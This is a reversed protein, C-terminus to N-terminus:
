HIDVKVENWIDDMEQLTMAMLDLNREKAVDEMKQFRKIFKQNSRELSGEPDINLFRAYNTLAFLLDGFEENIHNADKSAVAEKLEDMEEAVKDWVQETTEWEFGVKKAKQQIRFAKPLAPLSAPVGELVSKKKKRGKEQLKIAEWSKKVAESDELKLDGYVHPHRRILKDCLENIVSEINFEGKEDGIKAYFVIHLLVDGLEEKINQMDKNTIAEALEYTEEITLIRLSEITQERDWPCKERLDDMINLLREFAQKKSEMNSSNNLENQPTLEM